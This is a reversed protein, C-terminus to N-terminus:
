DLGSIPNGVFDMTRVHPLPMKGRHDHSSAVGVLFVKMGSDSRVTGSDTKQMTM